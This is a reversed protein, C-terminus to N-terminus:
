SSIYTGLHIHISRNRQLEIFWGTITVDRSPNVTMWLTPPGYTRLTSEVDMFLSVFPLSHRRGVQTKDM